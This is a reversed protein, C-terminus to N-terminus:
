SQIPLPEAEVRIPQPSATDLLLPFSCTTRQAVEPEVTIPYAQCYGVQIGQDDYFRFLLSVETDRTGIARILAFADYTTTMPDSYEPDAAFGTEIIEFSEAPSQLPFIDWLRATIQLGALSRPAITRQCTVWATESPAINVTVGPGEGTVPMVCGYFETGDAEYSRFSVGVDVPSDTANTVLVGFHLYGDETNGYGEAFPVIWWQPENALYVGSDDQSGSEDVVVSISTSEGSNLPTTPSILSREAETVGFPTYRSIQEAVFEPSRGFFWRWEGDSEVLRVVDSMVSDESSFPQTFSVEATNPYTTGTVPWTWSVFQVGTVTIEGPGRPWFDHEYWGVVAARPVIAQADPHLRDYLADFAGDKELRSLERAAESAAEADQQAQQANIPPCIAAVIIAVILLRVIWRMSMGGM